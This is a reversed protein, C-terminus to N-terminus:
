PFRSYVSLPELLQFSGKCEGMAVFMTDGVGLCWKGFIVVDGNAEFRGGCLIWMQIEGGGAFQM